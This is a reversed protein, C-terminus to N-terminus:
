RELRAWPLPETGLGLYIGKQQAYAHIGARGKERGIGSEKMGGFPTAISLQKYTNVWVTGAEIAKAVRWARRYDETWIGCALGYASSNAQRILDAEDTFPMAVLVPGFIEERATRSGNGLGTVITPRLYSGAALDPDSPRSGGAVLEGGEDVALEIYREVSDRHEPTVLPGMQTEESRPYGVVIRDTADILRAVFEDYISAQVFLRSGAICSQGQSSFIAFLAGATALELDADEFVINPSKGGLELAAPILKEAAAHAIQRGTATGGTFSVRRVLPHEVLAKGTTSGPGPLVSFLGPPLEAELLIEALALAMLPTWGAPKLLVANGAALAPAVKQAESAIPSNWPTIAAVVGSPQHISVTLYEGRSPTLEEEMTELAAAFFRFTGAASAVLARTELIPKGNDRSQLQALEEARETILNSARNLIAARVHPLMDRWAPAAMAAAGARAAEDVDSPDAAAVEAVLSGDHPDRSQMVAGRGPRWSEGVLIPRPTM